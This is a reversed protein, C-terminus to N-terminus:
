KIMGKVNLDTLSFKCKGLERKFDTSPFFRCWFRKITDANVDDANEQSKAKIAPTFSGLYGLKVAQGNQIYKSINMELAKLCAIVDPFAITTANSIDEALHDLSIDTGRYLRAVFREGPNEGFNINRKVKVFNVM